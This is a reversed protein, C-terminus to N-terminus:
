SSLMDGPVEMIPRLVCSNNANHADPAKDTQREYNTSFCSDLLISMGDVLVFWAAGVRSSM